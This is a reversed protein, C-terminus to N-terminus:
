LGREALWARMWAIEAEQAAIVEEALARVEPDAGHELVIRAMAVAGEHHPIMGQIFDVDADGTLPIAMAAHMENNAAAYALSSPSTLDLAAGMQHGAHPDAAPMAHGAHADGSMLPMDHGAHAGHDQAAAPLALLAALTFALPRIM